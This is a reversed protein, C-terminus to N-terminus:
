DYLFVQDVDYTVNPNEESHYDIETLRICEKLAGSQTKHASIAYSCGDAIINKVVVYITIM